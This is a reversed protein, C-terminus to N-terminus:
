FLIKAASATSLLIFFAFNAAAFIASLFNVSSIGILVSRLILDGPFFLDAIELDFLLL